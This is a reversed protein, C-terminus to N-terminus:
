YLELLDIYLICTKITYFFKNNIKMVSNFAIIQYCHILFLQFQDMLNTLISSMLIDNFHVIFFLIFLKFLNQNILFLIWLISPNIIHHKIKILTIQNSLSLHHKCLYCYQLFHTDSLPWWHYNWIIIKSIPKIILVLKDSFKPSVFVM